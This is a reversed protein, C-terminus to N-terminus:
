GPYWLLIGVRFDSFNFGIIKAYKNENSMVDGISGPAEALSM